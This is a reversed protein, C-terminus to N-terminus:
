KLYPNNKGYDFNDSGDVVPIALPDNAGQRGADPVTSKTAAPVRPRTNQKPKPDYNWEVFSMSIKMVGIEPTNTNYSDLMVYTIGYSKILENTIKIVNQDKSGKNIELLPLILDKFVTWDSLDLMLDISVGSAKKGSDLISEGEWSIAKQRTINKAMSISIVARGPVPVDNIYLQNWSKWDGGDKMLNSLYDKYSSLLSTQPQKLKVPAEKIDPTAM